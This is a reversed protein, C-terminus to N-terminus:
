FVGWFFTILRRTCYSHRLAFDLTAIQIEWVFVVFIQLGFKFRRFMSSNEKIISVIISYLIYMVICM